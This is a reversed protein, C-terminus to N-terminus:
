EVAQFLVLAQGRSFLLDLRNAMLTQSQGELCFGGKPLLSTFVTCNYFPVPVCGEVMCNRRM